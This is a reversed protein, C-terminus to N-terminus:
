AEPTSSDAAGPASNMSEEVMSTAAELVGSACVERVDKGAPLMTLIVEAGRAADPGSRRPAVGRAAARELNVALLDYGAVEHGNNALNAAMPQGMNGLGIFAIKAM